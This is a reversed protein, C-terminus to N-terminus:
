IQTEPMQSEGFDPLGPGVCGAQDAPKLAPGRGPRLQKSIHAMLSFTCGLVM